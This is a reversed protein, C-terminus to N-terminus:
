FEPSPETERPASAGLVRRAFALDDAEAQRAPAPTSKPKAAKSGWGTRPVPRDTPLRDEFKGRTAYAAHDRNRIVDWHWNPRAAARIEELFRSDKAQRLRIFPAKSVDFSSSIRVTERARTIAVYALRREEEIAEENDEGGRGHPMIGENWFPLRVRDFELGKSAHVTMVRFGAQAEQQDMELTSEQVFAEISPFASAQELLLSLNGIRRATESMAGAKDVLDETSIEEEEGGKDRRREENRSAVLTSLFERPHLSLMDTRDSIGASKLAARRLDPLYGTRELIALLAAGADPAANIASRLDVVLRGFDKASQIFAKGYPEAEEPLDVRDNMVSRLEDIFSTNKLRANRNVKAISTPGLGRSPKNIIRRLLTEADSNTLFGAFAMADRVESSKRIDSAKGEVVPLGAARLEKAVARVLERTRVLVAFESPDQGSALYRRAEASIAEIELFPSTHREIVVRHAPRDPDAPAITKDFRATNNSVLVNAADLIAPQCRYSARLFRTQLGEYRRAMARMIASDSGRFAYISQDDDGVFAMTPRPFNRVRYGNIEHAGDAASAFSNESADRDVVMPRCGDTFMDLWAAQARNMDQVEDVMFHRFTSRWSDRIQPNDRFVETVTNMLDSFDVANQDKLARQYAAYVRVFQPTEFRDLIKGWAIDAKGLEDGLTAKMELDIQKESLLSASLLRSKALELDRFFDDVDFADLALNEAVDEALARADAEDFISFNKSLGARESEVRLIRLSIGHFTGIWPDGYIGQPDDARLEELVPLIRERMERAAKNTFTVMMVSSPDAGLGGQEKPMVLHIFRGVLTRTKGSGAGAIIMVPDDTTLAAERQEGSLGDVFERFSM